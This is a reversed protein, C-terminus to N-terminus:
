RFAMEKFIQLDFERLNKKTTKMCRYWNIKVNKLHSIKYIVRIFCNCIKEVPIYFLSILDLFTECTKSKLQYNAM